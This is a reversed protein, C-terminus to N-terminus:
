DKKSPITFGFINREDKFSKVYIKGNHAEIIKKSTERGDLITNEM